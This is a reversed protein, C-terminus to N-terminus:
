EKNKLIITKSPPSSLLSFNIVLHSKTEVKKDPKKIFVKFGLTNKNQNAHVAAILAFASSVSLGSIYLIKTNPVQKNNTNNDSKIFTANAPLSRGLSVRCFM